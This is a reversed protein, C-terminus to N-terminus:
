NRFTIRNLSFSTGNAMVQWHVSTSAFINFMTDKSHGTEVLASAADKVVKALENYTMYKYDSLEFYQWNKKEKVEKGGVTETSERLIV